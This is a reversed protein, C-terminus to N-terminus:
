ASFHREAREWDEPTGIDWFTGAVEVGLLHGEAALRPLVEHELSAAGAAPIYRWVRPAFAYLGGNVWAPGRHAADKELFRAIRGGPAREVRGRSSADEVRFLAVAGLSGTEWRARELAWPVCPTLTDGNLVLAPGVVHGRALRLAGATGLPEDEVSYRLRVGLRTGDDLTAQVRDAGYGVCLVVDRVGHGALWELQRELLPRGGVPMLPKPLAGFQSSLSKLRSGMGGALVFARV